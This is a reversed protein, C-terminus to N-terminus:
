ESAVSIGAVHSEELRVLLQTMGQATVVLSWTDPAYLDLYATGLGSKGGQSPAGNNQVTLLLAGADRSFNIRIWDAKGHRVANNVADVVITHVAPIYPTPIVALPQELGIDILASWNTIFAELEALEDGAGLPASESQQLVLRIAHIDRRAAETDNRALHDQLKLIAALFNGRVDGHLRSAVKHSVVKLQSEVHLKELTSSDLSNKLSTLIRSRAVSVASPLSTSLAVFLTIVHLSVVRWPEDASYGWTEALLLLPLSSTLLIGSIALYGPVGYRELSPLLWNGLAGLALAGAVWIGMLALAVPIEYVRSYTLGFLFVAALGLYQLRFPQASAYLTLFERLRIRPAHSPAQNWLETSVRQWTSDSLTRLEELNPRPESPSSLSAELQDLSATVAQQSKRLEKDVYALLTNRMSQVAARHASLQEEGALLVELVEARALAFRDIEELAHALVAFGVVSILASFLLRQPTPIDDDLAFYNLGVVLLTGRVIGGSAWVSAAVWLPVPRERRHRLVTLHAGFFVVGMGVQALAAIAFITFATSWSSYTPEENFVFGLIWGPAAILFGSLSVARRGGMKLAAAEWRPNM